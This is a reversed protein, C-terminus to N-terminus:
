RESVGGKQQNNYPSTIISSMISAHDITEWAHRSMTVIISMSRDQDYFSLCGYFYPRKTVM